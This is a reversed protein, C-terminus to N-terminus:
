EKFLISDKQELSRLERIFRSPIEEIIGQIKRDYSAKMDILSVEM